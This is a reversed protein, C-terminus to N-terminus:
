KLSDSHFGRGHPRPRNIFRRIDAGKYYHLLIEDYTYGREGMVAAGIQCLGVGHGWRRRDASVM